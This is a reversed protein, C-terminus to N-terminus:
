KRASSASMGSRSRKWKGPERGPERKKEQIASIRQIKLAAVFGDRHAFGEVQVLQGVKLAEFKEPDGDIQLLATKLRRDDTGVDMFRIEKEAVTITKRQVNVSMIAAEIRIPDCANMDLEHVVQPPEAAHVSGHAFFLSFMLGLWYITASFRTRKM